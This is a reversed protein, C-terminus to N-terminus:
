FVIEWTKMLTSIKPLFFDERWWICAPAQPVECKWVCTLPELLFVDRIMLALFGALSCSYCQVLRRLYLNKTDTRLKILFNVEQIFIAARSTWGGRMPSYHLRLEDVQHWFKYLCGRWWGHSICCQGEDDKESSLFPNSWIKCHGTAGQSPLLFVM